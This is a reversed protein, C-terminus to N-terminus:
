NELTVQGFCAVAEGHDVLRFMWAILIMPNFRMRRDMTVQEASEGIHYKQKRWIRGSFLLTSDKYLVIGCFIYFM